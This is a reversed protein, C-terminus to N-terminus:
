NCQSMFCLEPSAGFDSNRNVQLAVYTKCCWPLVLLPSNQFWNPSKRPLVKNKHFPTMWGHLTSMASVRMTLLMTLLVTGISPCCHSSM